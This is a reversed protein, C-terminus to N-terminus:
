RLIEYDDIEATGDKRTILSWTLNNEDVVIVHDEYEQLTDYTVQFGNYIGCWVRTEKFTFDIIYFDGFRGITFEDEDDLM